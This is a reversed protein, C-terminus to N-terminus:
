WQIKLRRMNANYECEYMHDDDELIDILGSIDKTELRLGQVYVFRGTPCVKKIDLEIKDLLRKTKYKSRAEKATLMLVM